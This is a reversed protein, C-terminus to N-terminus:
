WVPRWCLCRCHAFLAAAAPLHGAASALCVALAVSTGVLLGIINVVGQAASAARRKIVRAIARRGTVPDWHHM